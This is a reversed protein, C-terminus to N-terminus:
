MRRGCAPCLTESLSTDADQHTQTILAELDSEGFGTGGLEPLSDLLDLLQGPDYTAYDSTRNDALMLRTAEDSGPDYPTIIAYLHEWGLSLAAAYTHNGALVTGDRAVVIPKYQGNRQLSDAIRETDGNRPNRPHPRLEGVAVKVMQLAGIM